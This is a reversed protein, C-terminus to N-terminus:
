ITQPKLCEQSFLETATDAIAWARLKIMGGVVYDRMDDSLEVRGSKMEDPINNM